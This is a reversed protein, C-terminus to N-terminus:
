SVLQLYVKLFSCTTDLLIPEELKYHWQSLGDLVWVKWEEFEVGSWDELPRSSLRKNNLRETTGSEKHDWPSCCMPSGTRWWRRSSAWVWTWQIPSAMWGDRSRSDGERGARLRERRWIKKLLTNARRMLHGFYQFKLMLGELSYEPNVEKLISQNLSFRNVCM